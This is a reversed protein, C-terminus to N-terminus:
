PLLLLSDEVQERKTMYSLNICEMLLINAESYFRLSKVQESSLNWNYGISRNRVMLERLKELFLDWNEITDEIAPFKLNELATSLNILGLDWSKKVCFRYASNLIELLRDIVVNSAIDTKDTFALDRALAVMLSCAESIKLARQRQSSLEQSFVVAASPTLGLNQYPFDVLKGTRNSVLALVKTLDGTEIASKARAIANASVFARERDTDIDLAIARAFSPNSIGAYHKNAKIEAWRLVQVLKEDELIMNDISKKFARIFTEANDLLSATLRFVDWWRDDRIHNTVLQEFFVDSANDVINKAAFYEQFSLHAFAHIKHGLQVLIGHQSEIEKLIDQGDVDINEDVPLGKLFNSIKFILDKEEFYIEEKEMTEIAIRSLLQRKRGISLFHYNIDRRINRSTDWKKLLADISEEYLEIKRKPFRMTQDFYLCLLTLLLPTRGLEQLGHQEPKNIEVIFLDHKQPNLKFWKAVLTKIQDNDFDAIEVYTFKEFDYDVASVRCSIIFRAKAYTNTFNNIETIIKSRQNNEENVEDLGDFLIIMEGKELLYNILASSDPFSCIEFQRNIFDMLSLKSDNWDKCSIFVPILKIKAEVALLAVRKLLTTKGAGPKGLIVLKSNEAILRFASKRKISSHPQIKSKADKRLQEVDYRRSATPQDLIFLDTYIDSLIIPKPNGLVRTTSCIEKIKDRYKIAADSWKFQKWKEKLKEIAHDTLDKGYKEWIWVTAGTLMDM